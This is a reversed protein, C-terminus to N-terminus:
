QGEVDKVAPTGAVVFLVGIEPSYVAAYTVGAVTAEASFNELDLDADFFGLAEMVAEAHSPGGPPSTSASFLASWSAVAEINDESLGANIPAFQVVGDEENVSMGLTILDTIPYAFCQHSGCEEFLAGEEVTLAPLRLQSFGEADMIENWAARFEEVTINLIGPAATVASTTTTATTTTPTTGTTTPPM